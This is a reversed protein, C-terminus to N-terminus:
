VAIERTAQLRHSLPVAGVPDVCHLSLPVNDEDMENYDGETEDGNDKAASDVLTTEELAM